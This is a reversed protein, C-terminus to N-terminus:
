SKVLKRRVLGALGALGTGLLTLSAPEPTTTTPFFGASSNSSIEVIQGSSNVVVGYLITGTGVGSATVSIPGTFSGLNVYGYQANSATIGLVSWTTAIAGSSGGELISSGGSTFSMGNLTGTLGNPAAAIIILDDGAAFKGNHVSVTFTNSGLVVMNAATNTSGSFYVGANSGQACTYSAFANCTNAMAPVAAILTLTLAVLSIKLARM